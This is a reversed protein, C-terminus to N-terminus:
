IDLEMNLKHRLCLLLFCELVLDASNGDSSISYFGSPSLIKLNTFGTAGTTETSKHFLLAYVFLRLITHRQGKAKLNQGIM